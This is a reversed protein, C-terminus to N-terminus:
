KLEETKALTLVSGKVGIQDLLILRGARSQVPLWKPM